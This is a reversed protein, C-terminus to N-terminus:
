KTTLSLNGKKHHPTNHQKKLNVITTEKRVRAAKRYEKILDTSSMLHEPVREAERHKADPM